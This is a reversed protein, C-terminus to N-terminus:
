LCIVFYRLRAARHKVGLDCVSWVKVTQLSQMATQSNPTLSQTPLLWCDICPKRQGGRRVISRERVFWVQNYFSSSPTEPFTAVFHRRTLLLQFVRSTMSVSDSFNLGSM